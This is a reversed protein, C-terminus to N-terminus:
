VNDKIQTVMTCLGDYNAVSEFIDTFADLASVMMERNRTVIGWHARCETIHTFYTSCCRRM